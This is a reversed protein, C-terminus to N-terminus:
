INRVLSRMNEQAGGKFVRSLRLPTYYEERFSRGARLALKLTESL